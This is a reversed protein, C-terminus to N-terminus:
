RLLIMKNTIKINGAELRYFYIGSGVPKGQDNYGDWPIAASLSLNTQGTSRSLTPFTKVLEGAVNYIKLSFNEIRDTIRWRIETKNTFPNPYNQLFIEQPLEYRSDEIGITTITFCFDSIDEATNWGHDAAVIKVLCSDSTVLPITWLYNSDNPEMMAVEQWSIGNDQSYYINVYDVDSSANWQIITIDGGYYVEGGNPSLVQISPPITDIRYLSVYIDGGYAGSVWILWPNCYNDIGMKPYTGGVGVSVLEPTTWTVGDYYCAYINGDSSWSLWTKGTTDATMSPYSGQTFQVTPSWGTGDNHRIYLSDRKQWCAWLNNYKDCTSSPNNIDYSSDSDLLGNLCFESYLNYDEQYVWGIWINGISDVVVCPSIYNWSLPYGQAVMEIPSWNGDYYARLISYYPAGMGLGIGQWVLWVKGAKDTTMVIKEPWAQVLTSGSYVPIPESWTDSFSTSTYVAWDELQETPHSGLYWSIWATKQHDQTVGFCIIPGSSTSTDVLVPTGWEELQFDSAWLYSSIFDNKLWVAWLRTSSPVLAAFNGELTDPNVKTPLSWQGAYSLRLTCCIVLFILKTKMM